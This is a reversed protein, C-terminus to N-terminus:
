KKLFINTLFRVDNIHEIYNPEINEETYIGMESNPDYFMKINIDNINIKLLSYLGNNKRNNNKFCLEQGLAQLYNQFMEDNEAGKILYIRPPYTFMENKHNPILGNKLINELNYKPTWHYLFDYMNKIEESIEKQLSSNPEFQMLQFDMNNVIRGDKYSLFYGLKNMDQEILKLNEGVNAVLVYVFINNYHERKSIFDPRINYKSRIKEVVDDPELITGYAEKIQSNNYLKNDFCVSLPILRIDKYEQKLISIDLSNIYKFIENFVHSFIEKSIINESELLTRNGNIRKILSKIEILPNIKKSM